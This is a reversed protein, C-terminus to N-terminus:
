DDDDGTPAAKEADARARVRALHQRAMSSLDNAIGTHAWVVKASRDVMLSTPLAKIDYRESVSGGDTLVPFALHRDEVFRRVKTADGDTSVALVALGKEGHEEWTKTLEPTELRCPMCWTAWFNVLTVDHRAAVDHFSIPNGNVDPLTFDPAVTGVEYAGAGASNRGILTRKLGLSFVAFAVLLVVSTLRTSRV